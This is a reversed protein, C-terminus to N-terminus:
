NNFLNSAKELYNKMSWYDLCDLSNRVSEGEEVSLDPFEKALSTIFPFTDPCLIGTVGLNMHLKKGTLARLQNALMTMQFPYGYIYNPDLTVYDVLHEYEALRNALVKASHELSNFAQTLIQLGIITKQRQVAFKILLKPDPLYSNLQFGHCHPGALEKLRCLQEFLKEPNQEESHFHILNIARSDPQFINSLDEPRALRRRWKDQTTDISEDAVMVGIKIKRKTPFQRPFEQLAQLIEEKWTFGTIGIHPEM